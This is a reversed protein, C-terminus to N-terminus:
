PHIPSKIYLISWHRLPNKVWYLRFVFRSRCRQAAASRVRFQSTPNSLSMCGTAGFANQWVVKTVVSNNHGKNHGKYKRYIKNRKLSCCFHSSTVCFFFAVCNVIFGKIWQMVASSLSSSQVISVGEVLCFYYQYILYLMSLTYSLPCFLPAAPHM